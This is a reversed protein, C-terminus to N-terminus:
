SRVSSPSDAYSYTPLAPVPRSRLAPIHVPSFDRVLAAYESAVSDWSHTMAIEQVKENMLALAEDNSLALRIANAFQQADGHNVLIGAGDCLLESAHPFRTAIVPTGAVLADVLVGSTIQDKSDYPLIVVTSDAVLSILEPVTRYTDDFTVTDSLEHNIVLQKLSDRYTDGHYALVKPHTVGAITYRPQPDMDKLLALADIVHEIGKGPGLLGWTLLQPADEHHHHSKPEPPTAGHPILSVKDMNVPYLTDLRDYATKTMVVIHDAVQMISILVSRQHPTPNTLVTHLTVITPATVHTLVDLIEAGDEGGYIGYEHQIIVSDCESLMRSARQISEKDGNVMVGSIGTAGHLVPIHQDMVRIIETTHGAKTLAAGLAAGFTALGCLEPPYTGLLGIRLCNRVLSTGSYYLPEPEAGAPFTLSSPTTTNLTDETTTFNKLM